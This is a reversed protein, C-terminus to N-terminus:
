LKNLPANNALIHLTTGTSTNIGSSQCPIKLDVEDNPPAGSSGDLVGNIKIYTLTYYDFGPASSTLYVYETRLTKSVAAAAMSGAWNNFAAGQETTNDLTIVEGFMYQTLMKSSVSDYLDELSTYGLDRMFKSVAYDTFAFVTPARNLTDKLNFHDVLLITTDFQSNSKLYDYTSLPTSTESLGGDELYEDKKCSNITIAFLLLLAVVAANKHIYKM